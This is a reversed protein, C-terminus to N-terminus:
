TIQWLVASHIYITIDENFDAILDFCLWFDSRSIRCVHCKHLCVDTARLKEMLNTQLFLWLHRKPIILPQSVCGIEEYALTYFQSLLAHITVLPARLQGVCIYVCFNFIRFFLWSIVIQIKSSLILFLMSNFILRNFSRSDLTSCYIM